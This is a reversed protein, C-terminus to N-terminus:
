GREDGGEMNNVSEKQILLDKNQNKIEEEVSVLYIFMNRRLFFLTYLPVLFTAWALWPHHLSTLTMVSFITLVWVFVILYLFIIFEDKNM